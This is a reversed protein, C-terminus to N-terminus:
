LRFLFASLWRHYLVPLCARITSPPLTRKLPDRGLQPNTHTRGRRQDSSATRRDCRCGSGKSSRSGVEVRNSGATVTNTGACSSGGLTFCVGDKLGLVFMSDGAKCSWSRRGMERVRLHGRPRMTPSERRNASSNSLPRQQWPTWCGLSTDLVVVSDMMWAQLEAEM